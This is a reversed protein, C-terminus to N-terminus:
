PNGLVLSVAQEGLQDLPGEPHEEGVEGWRLIEPPDLLIAALVIVQAEQSGSPHPIEQPLSIPLQLRPHHILRCSLAPFLGLPFPSPILTIPRYTHTLPREQSTYHHPRQQTLDTAQHLTIPLAAHTLQQRPQAHPYHERSDISYLLLLRFLIYKCGLFETVGERCVWFCSYLGDVVYWM